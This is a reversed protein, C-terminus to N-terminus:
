HCGLCHFRRGHCVACTTKDPDLKGSTHTDLFDPTHSAPKLQAGKMHCFECSYPPDIQNHCVLCDAMQPLGSRDPRDSVELGRHCAECPNQTNLQVRLEPSPPTLYTKKDIAAAILPALNGLKLHLQHNFRALRPTREPGMPAGIESTKHCKLCVGEAPPPNDDLRTSTLAVAHCVACDLKAALHVRHSFPQATQAVAVGAIAILLFPVRLKSVTSDSSTLLSSDSTLGAVPAAPPPATKQRSRIGSGGCSRAAM